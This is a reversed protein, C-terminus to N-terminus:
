LFYERVIREVTETNLPHEETEYTTILNISPIIGHSTYTHLKQCTTTCYSPKDMLGFHDWYYVKGTRPHRITFDPYITIDGIQLACEYRFPIQNMYLVMDILAESKSRVLNGSACPYKLFEPYKTNQDYPSKMWQSLEESIPRFFPSLLQRFEPHNLLRELKGSDPNYHRLYFEIACKEKLLKKELYSLYTSYALQEALMRKEKKIYTRRKGYSRYWKFHKGNAACILKGKPLKKQVTRIQHLQDVVEQHRKLMKQYM